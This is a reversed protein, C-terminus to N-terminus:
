GPQAMEVLRVWYSIGFPLAADAFDYSANHLGASDGNGIFIFAGPRAELMYAFDEAGMFPPVAADVQERGAVDAAVSAAFAAEAAHNVTVPYGRGYSVAAAAGHAEAISRAILKLRAEAADRTEPRLTRVTGSLRASDPIANRASGAEFRTVSVVCADLPDILRSAISQLGTVVAAGALVPDVGLHPMAAHSGKGTVTIDFVDSSAMIPGPRLSFRGVPLGPLNHMGFFRDISFRSVLGDDLMARAGAGGEEAPQFVVAATGAFARTGCLHRAAGLLMATHGDHGCAHMRGAVSSGHPLAANQETIPLADMDARLAITGPGASRGRILGVVGSRGLGSVVEDCGFATLKEAVLATTHPLDYLLEPQRHIAHRWARVEGLDADTSDILAM